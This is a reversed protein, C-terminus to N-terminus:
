HTLLGELARTEITESGIHLGAADLSWAGELSRRLWRGTLLNVVILGRSAGKTEAVAISGDAAVRGISPSRLRNSKTTIFSWAWQHRSLDDVVLAHDTAWLSVTGTKSANRLRHHNHAFYIVLVPGAPIPHDDVALRRALKAALKTEEPTSLVLAQFPPLVPEGSSWKLTPSGQEPGTPHEEQRVYEDILWNFSGDIDPLSRRAAPGFWLRLLGDLVAPRATLQSPLAGMALFEGLSGGLNITMATSGCPAEVKM